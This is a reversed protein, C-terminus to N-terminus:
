KLKGVIMASLVVLGLLRRFYNVGSLLEMVAWTFLAGFAIAIFLAHSKGKSMVKTLATAILWTLLPLNPLQWIAIKGDKDKIARDLFTRQESM